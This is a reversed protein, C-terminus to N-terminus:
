TLTVMSVDEPMNIAINKIIENEESDIFSTHWQQSFSFWLSTQILLFIIIIKARLQV